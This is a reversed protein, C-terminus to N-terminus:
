GHAVESAIALKRDHAVLGYSKAALALGRYAPNSSNKYRDWLQYFTELSSLASAVLFSPCTIVTM